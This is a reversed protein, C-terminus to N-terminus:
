SHHAPSRDGGVACTGCPRTIAQTYSVRRHIIRDVKDPGPSRTWGLFIDSQAQMLHQRGPGWRESGTGDPAQLNSQHAHGTGSVGHTEDGSPHYSPVGALLVM